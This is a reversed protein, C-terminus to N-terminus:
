ELIFTISVISDIIYKTAKEVDFGSWDDLIYCICAACYLFRMDAETGSLTASFSGEPQQLSKVGLILHYKFVLENFKTFQNFM